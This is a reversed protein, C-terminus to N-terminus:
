PVAIELPPSGLLRSMYVFNYLYINWNGKVCMAGGMAMDLALYATGIPDRQLKALCIDKKVLDIQDTVFLM